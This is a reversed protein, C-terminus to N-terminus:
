HLLGLWGCVGPPDATPGSCMRRNRRYGNGLDLKTLEWRFWALMPEFSDYLPTCRGGRAWKLSCRERQNWLRDAVWGDIGEIGMMGNGMAWKTLEQAFWASVPKFPDGLRTWESDGFANWAAADQQNWLRGSVRRGGQIYGNGLSLKDIKTRILGTYAWIFGGFHTCGRWRFKMRHCKSLTPAPPPLNHQPHRPIGNSPDPVRLM